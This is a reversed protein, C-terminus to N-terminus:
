KANVLELLEAYATQLQIDVDERAEIIVDPAVGVNHYNKGCPPNYYSVTLTVTSQDTYAYTAQMIGKGFTNTGVIKANLKGADRYDRIAATFIEGASATYENCLVVFPLDVVHDLGRSDDESKITVESKGKYQYSLLTEGTPILYSLVQCVSDVYGGPNNRLDFVIGKVGKAMAEDIAAKFQPFTNEKFAVISIYALGDSNTFDTEVNVEEVEARTAELTVLDGGRLVTIQVKTGIEGRIYYVANLYGLEDITKGDVAHIYDGVKMGAAEAPSGPYVTNVMITEDNHNYEVMVGIGGFKGSMETDFEGSEVPPRYVSYPDGVVAVYCYIVADTVATKDSHDITDYYHELFLSATERAHTLTDPLGGELNYLQNFCREVFNLKLRDYKPLNWDRLYADVSDRHKISGTSDINSQIEEKTGVTNDPLIFDCSSMSALIVSLTLVLLIVSGTLKKFLNKM